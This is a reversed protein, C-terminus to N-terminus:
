VKGFMKELTRMNEAEELTAMFDPDGSTAKYVEGAILQIMEVHKIIPNKPEIKHLRTLLSKVYKGRTNPDGIKRLLVLVEGIDQNVLVEGYLMDVTKLKSEFPKGKTETKM